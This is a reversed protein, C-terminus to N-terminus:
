FANEFEPPPAEDTKVAYIDARTYRHLRHCEECRCDFWEPAMEQLESQGTDPGVYKVLLAATCGSTDCTVALYLHEM